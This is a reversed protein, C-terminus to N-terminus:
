RSRNDLTDSFLYSSIVAIPTTVYINGNIIMEKVDCFSIKEVSKIENDHDKRAHFEMSTLHICYIHLLLPNRNPSTSLPPMSIFRKLDNVIVGTEEALERAAGEVALEGAVLGGSPLELPADNIVPRNVRVLVFYKKDVVPLIMVQPQSYEVTYYGGRNYVNFWKNSHVTEVPQLEKCAIESLRGDLALTSSMSKITDLLM